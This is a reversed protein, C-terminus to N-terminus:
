SPRGGQILSNVILIQLPVLIYGSIRLLTACSSPRITVLKLVRNRLQLSLQVPEDGATWRSGFPVELPLFEHFSLALADWHNLKIDKRVTPPEAGHRKEERRTVAGPRSFILMGFLMLIASLNLLRAPAVGYNTLMWSVCDRLWERKSSHFMQQRKVRHWQLFVGDANESDGSDRLFKELESYPQQDNGILRPTGDPMRFASQWHIQIRRYTSGTLDLRGQFQNEAGNEKTQASNDVGADKPTIQGSKAFDVTGFSTEDFSADKKFLCREFHATQDFHAKNFHATDDFVTNEFSADGNFHANDFRAGGAFHVDDFSGGGVVHAHGFLAPDGPWEFKAGSLDLFSGVEIEIFSVRKRFTAKRLKANYATTVGAFGVPGDFKASELFLSGALKTQGFHADQMFHARTLVLDGEIRMESLLAEGGVVIDSFYAGNDIHAHAFNVTVSSDFQASELNLKGKVHIDRFFADGSVVKIADLRGNLDISAGEFNLGKKFVSNQLNLHSKFVSYSFDVRDEFECNVLSVEQNITRYSLDLPGRIIADKLEVRTNGRGLAALSRAEVITRPTAPKAASGTVAFLHPAPQTFAFGAVSSVSCLELILLRAVYM